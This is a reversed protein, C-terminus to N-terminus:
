VGRANGWIIKHLQPLVRVNMGKGIVKEAMAKIDTGGAPTFIVPCKIDHSHIFAEAYEFDADSAIIFKLQDTEKLLPINPLFMKDNMGSSPCKIDMSIMLRKHVPLASIDLSGNTEVSVNKGKGILMDILECIDNHLLPEGGTICVNMEKEALHAVDAASMDKGGEKSYPTDCWACSLNCGALRIFFTVEGMRVGEGQISRFTECIKM